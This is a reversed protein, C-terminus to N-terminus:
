HISEDKGPEKTPPLQAPPKATAVRGTNKPKVRSPILEAALKKVAKAQSKTIPKNRARTYVMRPQEVDTTTFHDGNPRVVVVLSGMGVGPAAEAAFKANCVNLLTREYSEFKSHAVNFLHGL